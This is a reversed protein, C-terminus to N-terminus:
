RKMYNQIFKDDRVIKLNAGFFEKVHNDTLTKDKWFIAIDELQNLYEELKNEDYETVNPNFMDALLPKLSETRWPKLLQLILNASLSRNQTGVFQTFVLFTATTIIISIQTSVTSDTISTTLIFPIIIILLIISFKKRGIINSLHQNM